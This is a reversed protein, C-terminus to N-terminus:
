EERDLEHGCHSCFNANRGVVSRCKGCMKRPSRHRPAEPQQVELFDLLRPLCRDCVHCMTMPHGGHSFSAQFSLKNMALKLKEEGCLACLGRRKGRGM